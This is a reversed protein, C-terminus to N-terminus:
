CRHAFGVTGAQQGDTWTQAKPMQSMRCPTGAWGALGYRSRRALPTVTTAGVSRLWDERSLSCPLLHCALDRATEALLGAIETAGLTTATRFVTTAAQM